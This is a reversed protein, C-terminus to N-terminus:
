QDQMYARDGHGWRFIRHEFVGVEPDDSNDVNDSLTAVGLIGVCSKVEISSPLDWLDRGGNDVIFSSGKALGGKVSNLSRGLKVEGM